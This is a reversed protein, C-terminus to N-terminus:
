SLRLGGLCRYVAGAPVDKSAAECGGAGGGGAGVRAVGGDGPGGHAAGFHAAGGGTLLPTDIAFLRCSLLLLHQGVPEGARFDAHTLGAM